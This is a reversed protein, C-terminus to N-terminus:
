KKKEETVKTYATMQIWARIRLEVKNPETMLTMSKTQCLDIVTDYSITKHSKIYNDIKIM